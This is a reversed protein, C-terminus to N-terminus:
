GTGDEEVGAREQRGVGAAPGLHVARQRAEKGFVGGRVAEQTRHGEPQAAGAVAVALAFGDGRDM